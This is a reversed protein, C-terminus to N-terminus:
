RRSTAAPCGASRAPPGPTSRCGSSPTASAAASRAVTSRGGGPSATSCRPPSTRASRASRCCPTCATPPCSSSARASSTSRTARGQRAARRDLLRGRDASATAPSSTSCRRRARARSPSSGSCRARARRGALRGGAPTRRRHARGRAGPPRRDAAADAARVRAEDRVVTAAEGLMASVIQAEGGEGPVFSAVDRGDRLVTCMDCHARVEALRHSIFLVSRNREKWRRMVAFVRESLDPPLAATIEDLLLLQPDFALARALDLMRLFPLPVDRVQEDLDLGDLDMAPWSPGCPASTPARDPAPERRRDPRAGAGPGPVGAGPGHAPRREAPAARDARRPHRDDRRRRAARRHPDQRADVQRRRQRRAPRPARRAPRAPRRRAARRRSRLGQRRGRDRAATTRTM